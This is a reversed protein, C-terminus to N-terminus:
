QEEKDPSSWQGCEPASLEVPDASVVLKPDVRCMRMQGTETNTQVLLIGSLMLTQYKGEDANALSTTALMFGLATATRKM